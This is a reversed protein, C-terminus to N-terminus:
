PRTQGQAFTGGPLARFFRCISADDVVEMGPHCPVNVIRSYLQAAVPCAGSLPRYYKVVAFRAPPLDSLSVAGRALVPIHPVVVDAAPRVLITLGESLALDTIRQRQRRYGDAWRTMCELRQLILAAAIDSMKGNCAFAALSSHTGIGFNLFARVKEAQAADVVACGGEGFGWPKTHHFSVIESARLPPSRRAPFSVAADIIMPKGAAACLNSLESFDPQGGFLDTVLLGDWSETPLAALASIDIIGNEDCDVARVRGALPGIVTSIFGFASVAWVHPRGAEEAHAGALAFLAATASSASVVARGTDLDLMRAVVEAFRQQLPGFNAWRGARSSLRLLEQVRMWDPPKDEVFRVQVEQAEPSSASALECKMFYLRSILAKANARADPVRAVNGLTQQLFV